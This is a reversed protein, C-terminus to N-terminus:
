VTVARGQEDCWWLGGGKSFGCGKGHVPCGDPKSLAAAPKVLGRVASPLAALARARPPAKTVARPAKNFPHSVAPPAPRVAKPLKKFGGAPPTAVRLAELCFDRLTLGAQAAAVRLDAMLGDDVNRLNLAAVLIV